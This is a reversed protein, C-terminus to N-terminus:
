AAHYQISGLLAFVVVKRIEVPLHSKYQNLRITDVVTHPRSFDQILVFSEPDGMDRITSICRVNCYTKM